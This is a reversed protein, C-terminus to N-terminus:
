NNMVTTVAYVMSYYFSLKNRRTFGKFRSIDLDMCINFKPYDMRHFFAFHEKRKWNEIDIYKMLAVKNRINFGIYKDIAGSTKV